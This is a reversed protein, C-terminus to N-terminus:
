YYIETNISRFITYLHRLLFPLRYIRSGNKMYTTYYLNHLILQTSFHTLQKKFM